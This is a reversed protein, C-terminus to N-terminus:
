RVVGRHELLGELREELAGVRADLTDFRSLVGSSLTEELTAVRQMSLRAFDSISRAGHSRYVEKLKSYEEDSVRLSIMRSKRKEETM